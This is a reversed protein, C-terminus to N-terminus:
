SQPQQARSVKECDASQPAGGARLEDGLAPTLTLDKLTEKRLEPRGHAQGTDQKRRSVLKTM